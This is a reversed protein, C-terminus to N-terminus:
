CQEFAHINNWPWNYKGEKWGFDILGASLPWQAKYSFVRTIFVDYSQFATYQWFAVLTLAITWFDSVYGYFSVPLHEQSM